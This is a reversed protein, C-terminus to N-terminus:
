KLFKPFKNYEKQLNKVVLGEFYTLLQTINTVYKVWMEFTKYIM